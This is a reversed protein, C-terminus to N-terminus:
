VSERERGLTQATWDVLAAAFGQDVWIKRVGPHDLRTWLLPHKAGDRDQISAAVGHVALLLGLTDTLCCRSSWGGSNM